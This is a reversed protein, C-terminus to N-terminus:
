RYSKLFESLWTPDDIKLQMGLVTNVHTDLWRQLYSSHPAKVAYQEFLAHIVPESPTVDSASLSNRASKSASDFTFAEIGGSNILEVILFPSETNMLSWGRQRSARAALLSPTDMISVHQCHLDRSRDAIEPIANVVMEAAILKSRDIRYIVRDKGSEYLGTNFNHTAMWLAVQYDSSADLYATNTAYHQAVSGIKAFSDVTPANRINELWLSVASDRLILSLKYLVIFTMAVKVRTFPTDYKDPFDPDLPRGRRVWDEYGRYDSSIISDVQIQDRVYISTQEPPWLRPHRRGQGRYLYKPNFFDPNPDDTDLRKILNDEGSFHEVVPVSYDYDSHPM